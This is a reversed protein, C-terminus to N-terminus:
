VNKQNKKRIERQKYYYILFKKIKKTEFEFKLKIEKNYLLEEEEEPFKYKQKMNYFICIKSNDYYGDNVYLGTLYTFNVRKNDFVPFISNEMKEYNFEKNQQAYVIDSKWGQNLYCHFYLKLLCPFFEQFLLNTKFKKKLIETGIKLQIM